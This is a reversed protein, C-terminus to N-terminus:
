EGGQIAEDIPRLIYKWNDGSNLPKPMNKIISEDSPIRSLEQYTKSILKIQDSYEKQNAALEAELKAYNKRMSKIQADYAENQTKLTAIRENLISIYVVLGLAAVLGISLKAERSFFNM